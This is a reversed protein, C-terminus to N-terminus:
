YINVPSQVQSINTAVGTNVLRQDNIQSNIANTGAYFNTYQGSWNPWAGPSYHYPVYGMHYYPSYYSSFM